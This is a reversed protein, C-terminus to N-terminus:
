QMQQQYYAIAQARSELHLCDLIQRMHYKITKETLCLTDAIEKYIMGEAVMSLVELQRATLPGEIEEAPHPAAAMRAFEDLICKAMGPALPTEDRMLDGLLSCLQKADLSKLLYGSAGAKIAEFLSVEDEAVTLMVIKIEPFEANIARTAELGDCRPMHLDMVVVDPRLARTKNQAEYGDHAVGVVTFGHAILMNRLGDLFLPHDDVLLIQLGKLEVEEEYDAEGATALRPLTALIRTGEGPVSRIELEGGVLEARERMISLGFRGEDRRSESERGRQIADFGRGDDTIVIQVYDGVFSFNLDVRQADAHKRVNTMAEQIIRVVQEEVPPTLTNAPFDQPASLTTEIGCRESFQQAYERMNIILSQRFIGPGRLGLIHARIDAHAKRAAQVMDTLNIQAEQSHGNELLAQAAQAQVNIYGMVQGLGDHLERGLREREEMTAMTRQNDILAAQTREREAIESRLQANVTDLEATREAVRGELNHILDGLESSLANFARTLFGIEDSYQVPVQASYDGAEIRQVGHLLANLPKILITQFILPLGATILVSAVLIMRALPIFLQHLHQRFERHYDQLVGYPGSSLPVDVLDVLQPGGRPWAYGDVEPLAGVAWLSAGPDDNSHYVLNTPIGDYSFDFSGDPYLVAQFTFELQQQRFGRLREWTIILREPEQRVFVGGDGSIEPHLDTLLPLLLPVGAGYRYQYMRYEMRRGLSVAGDNCVYVQSYTKGYFPFDFGLGESCTYAAEEALLLKHGAARIPAFPAPAVDYGRAANPSFRLTRRDQLAPQYQKEYIPSIVWGTVGMVALMATLAVGVLKLLFSTSEPRYNLYTIAFIFIAILIGLSIFQNALSVSLLHASRLINFLSLGAVFLFVLTFGRAARAERTPPRFFPRVWRAWGREDARKACMQRYFSLPAWLLLALLLYDSWNPRYLIHGAYLQILRFIAYGIEWLMYLSSLALILRAERQRSDSQAPFRYAFQLLCTLAGGLLANQVYVAYLRPTPLLTVELFLATIFGTLTVFFGTLWALPPAPRSRRLLHLFYGSILTALVLQTLYGIATPTLYLTM